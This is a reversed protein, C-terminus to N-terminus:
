TAYRLLAHSGLRHLLHSAVHRAKITTSGDFGLKMMVDGSPSLEEFSTMFFTYSTGHFLPPVAVPFQHLPRPASTFFLSQTPQVNRYFCTPVLMSSLTYVYEEVLIPLM